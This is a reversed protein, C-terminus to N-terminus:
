SVLLTDTDYPVALKYTYNCLHIILVFWMNAVPKLTFRGVASITLILFWSLDILIFEGLHGSPQNMVVFETSDYDTPIDVVFQMLYYAIEFKGDLTLEYRNVDVRRSM